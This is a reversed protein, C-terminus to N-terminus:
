CLTKCDELHLRRAVGLKTTTRMIVVGSLLVMLVITFRRNDAATNHPNELNREVGPPPHGVPSQLFMERETSNM